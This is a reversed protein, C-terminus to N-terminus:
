NFSERKRDVVVWQLVTKIIKRLLLPMRINLAKYSDMSICNKSESVL